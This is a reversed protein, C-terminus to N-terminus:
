VTMSFRPFDHVKKLPEKWAQFLRQFTTINMDEPLPAQHGDASVVQVGDATRERVRGFRRGVDAELGEVLGLLVAGHLEHAEVLHRGPSVHTPAGSVARQGGSALQGRDECASLWRFCKRCMMSSAGAYGTM